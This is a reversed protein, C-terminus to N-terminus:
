SNEQLTAIQCGKKDEVRPYDYRFHFDTSADYVLSFNGMKELPVLPLGQSQKEHIELVVDISQHIFRNIGGTGTDGYLQCGDNAEIFHVDLDNDIYM